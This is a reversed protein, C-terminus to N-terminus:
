TVTTNHDCSRPKQNQGLTGGNDLVDGFYHDTGKGM